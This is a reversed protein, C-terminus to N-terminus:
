ISVLSPQMSRNFWELAEDFANINLLNLARKRYLNVVKAENNEEQLQFKICFKLSKISKQHEHLLEYNDAMCQAAQHSEKDLKHELSVELSQRFNKAANKYDHLNNYTLGLNMKLRLYHTPPMRLEGYIVLEDAKKLNAVANSNDGLKAYCVGQCEMIERLDIISKDSFPQTLAQICKEYVIIAKKYRELKFLCRGTKVLCKIWIRPNKLKITKYVRAAQKLQKLSIEYKELFELNTEGKRMNIEAKTEESIDPVTEAKDFEKMAEDPQKFILKTQGLNIYLNAITDPATKSADLKTKVFLEFRDAMARLKSKTDAALIKSDYFLMMVGNLAHGGKDYSEALDEKFYITIKKLAAAITVEAVCEIEPAYMESRIDQMNISFAM